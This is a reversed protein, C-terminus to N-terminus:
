PFTIDSQNQLIATFCNVIEAIFCVFYKRGKKVFSVTKVAQRSAAFHFPFLLFFSQVVDGQSRVAEHLLEHLYFYCVLIYHIIQGPEDQYYTIKCDATELVVFGEGM